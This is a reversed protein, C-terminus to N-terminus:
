HIRLKKMIQIQLNYKYLSDNSRAISPCGIKQAIGELKIISYKTYTVRKNLLLLIDDIESFQNLIIRGNVSSDVTILSFLRATQESTFNNSYKTRFYHFTKLLDKLRDESNIFKYSFGIGFKLKHDTGKEGSSTVGYILNKIRYYLIWFDEDTHASSKYYKFYRTLRNLVKKDYKKKSIDIHLKKDSINFNYGLYEFNLTNVSPTYEYIDTKSENASLDIQELLSFLLNKESNKDITMSKPYSKIILIDDVYRVYFIPSFERRIADDFEELYVESLANSFPMGLPVGSIDSNFIFKKIIDMSPDKLLSSKVLKQYLKHKNISPFFNKIDSKIVYFKQPTATLNSQNCYISGQSLFQILSKIIANRNPLVLSFKNIIETNVDKLELRLDEKKLKYVLRKGINNKSFISSFKM